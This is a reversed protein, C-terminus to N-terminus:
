SQGASRVRVRASEATVIAGRALEEGYRVLLEVCMPGQRDHRVDVLRVIGAHAHGLAVALEGFDKDLTVVVQAHRVAHALIDADGPDSTWHGVWDVDHGARAIDQIAGPWICSDLLIRL